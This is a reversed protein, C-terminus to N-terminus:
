ERPPPRLRCTTVSPQTTKTRASAMEPDRQAQTTPSHSPPDFTRRNSCVFANAACYRARSATQLPTERPLRRAPCSSHRVGYSSPKKSSQKGRSASHPNTPHSCRLEFAKKLKTERPLRLSSQNSPQVRLEFVKKLKTERPFRLSSQNSPQVASTANSM